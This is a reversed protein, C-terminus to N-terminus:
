PPDLIDSGNLRLPLALVPYRDAWNPQSLALDRLSFPSRVLTSVIASFNSTLQEM